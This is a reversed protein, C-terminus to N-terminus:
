QAHRQTMHLALRDIRHSILWGVAHLVLLVFFVDGAFVFRPGFNMLIISEGTAKSNDITFYARQLGWFLVVGFLYLATTILKDVRASRRRLVAVPENADAGVGNRRGLKGVAWVTTASVFLVYISLLILLLLFIRELYSLHPWVLWIPAPISPDFM